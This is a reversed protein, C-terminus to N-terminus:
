RARQYSLPVFGDLGSISYDDARVFPCQRTNKITNSSETTVPGDSVNNVSPQAKESMTKCCVRTRSERVM